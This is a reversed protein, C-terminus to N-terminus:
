KGFDICGLIGDGSNKEIFDDVHGGAFDSTSNYHTKWYEAQGELDDPVSGPKNGLLLRAAICNLFRNSEIDSHTKSMWDIGKEKLIDFKKQLGPHSALNQTDEFGISDIQWIDNGARQNLGYCSEVASIRTLFEAIPPGIGLNDVRTAIKKIKDRASLVVDSADELLITKLKIM